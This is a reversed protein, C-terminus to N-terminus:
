GGRRWKLMVSVSERNIVPEYHKITPSYMINIRYGDDDDVPPPFDIWTRKEREFVRVGVSFLHTFMVIELDGGYTTERSLIRTYESLSMRYACRLWWSLRQGNMLPDRMEYAVIKKRLTNGNHNRTFYALSNFLCSM